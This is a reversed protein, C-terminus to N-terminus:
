INRFSHSQGGDVAIVAGNVLSAKESCLFTVVNAVEEPTGFRRMPFEELAKSYEEPKENKVKEWGTNPIMIFGPTVTNFTINKTAYRSMMSLCKMLSIQASKAMNFWPRGGGEYGFISSITVIRGWNKRLMNPLYHMTLKTAIGANNNYVENWVAEETEEPIESGWRGGGGVSNCLIDCKPYDNILRDLGKITSLDYGTTRSIDPVIVGESRLAQSIALGIGRSNGTVIALKGELELNM